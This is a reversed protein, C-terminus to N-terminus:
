RPTFGTCNPTKNHISMNCHGVHACARCQAKAANYLKNEEERQKEAEKLKERRIREKEQLELQLEKAKQAKLEEQQRMKEAYERQEEQREKEREKAKKRELEENMHQQEIEQRREELDINEPNEFYTCFIRFIDNVDKSFSIDEGDKNRWQRKNIIENYALYCVADCFYDSVTAFHHCEEMGYTTFIGHLIKSEKIVKCYKEIYEEKDFPHDEIAKSYYSVNLVFERLQNDTVSTYTEKNDRYKEFHLAKLVALAVADHPNYLSAFKSTCMRNIFINYFYDMVLRQTIHNGECFSDAIVIDRVAPNCDIKKVGQHFHKPNINDKIIDLVKNYEIKVAEIEDKLFMECAKYRDLCYNPSDILSKRYNSLKREIEDSPYDKRSRNYLSISKLLIELDCPEGLFYEVYSQVVNNGMEPEPGVSKFTHRMGCIIEFYKKVIPDALPDNAMKKTEIMDNISEKTVDVVERLKDFLGM